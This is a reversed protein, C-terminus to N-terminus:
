DINTTDREAGKIEITTNTRIKEATVLVANARKQAEEAKVGALKLEYQLEKIVDEQNNIQLIYNSEMMSNYTKISDIEESLGDIKSEYSINSTCSQIKSILFLFGLIITIYKLNKKIWPEKKIPQKKVVKKTAM